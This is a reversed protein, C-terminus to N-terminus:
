PPGEAKLRRGVREARTAIACELAPRNVPRCDIQGAAIIAVGTTITIIDRRGSTLLATKTARHECTQSVEV